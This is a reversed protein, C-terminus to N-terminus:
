HNFKLIEAVDPGSYLVAIYNGRILNNLKINHSGEDSAADDITEVHSGNVNYIKVQLQNLKKLVTYHLVDETYFVKDIYTIQEKNDKTSSVENSPLFRKFIGNGYTSIYVFVSDNTGHFYDIDTILAGAPINEDWKNWTIGGDNTHFVGFGDSGLVMVNADYPHVQLCTYPLDPLNGTINKWNLGKETSVFVKNDKIHNGLGRMVVYVNNKLAESPYTHVFPYAANGTSPDVYARPLGNSINYFDFTELDIKHVYCSDFTAGTFYITPNTGLSISLSSIYEYPVDGSTFLEWNEGNNFSRYITNNASTYLVNPNNYDSKIFRGWQNSAAMGNNIDEWDGIVLNKKRLNRFLLNGGYLGLTGFMMKEDYPHTSVGGGDGGINLWLNTGLHYYVIGNDQTGGLMIKPNLKSVAISAFQTIPVANYESEWNYFGDNNTYYLGGDNGIFIKSGDKSWAGTHFDPHQVTIPGKFNYGDLSAVYWGGGAIVHDPNVPSVSIFSNYWGQGWHIDEVIKDDNDYMPCKIWSQGYDESKYLGLTFNSNNTYFAYIVNPFKKCYGLEIRAVDTIPLGNDIGLTTWSSGGNFTRLITGNYQGILVTDPHIPDIALGSFYGSRILQWSQGNNGSRFVGNDSTCWVKNKIASYEIETYSSPNNAMFIKSWTQGGDASRYLGAGGRVSTEGTGFLIINENFPDTAVAGGVVTPIKNHSLPILEKIGNALTKGQWLGGSAAVFRVMSDNVVEVDRVRGSVIFTGASPITIKQPGIATWTDDNRLNQIYPISKSFEQLRDVDDPNINKYSPNMIKLWETHKNADDVRLVEYGQANNVNLMSFVICSSLLFIKVNM